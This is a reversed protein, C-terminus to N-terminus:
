FFLSISEVLLKLSFLFWLNLHSDPGALMKIETKQFLLLSGMKGHGSKQGVSVWLYCVRIAKPCKTQPLQNCLLPFSICRM